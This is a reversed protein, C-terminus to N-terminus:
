EEESGKGDTSAGDWHAEAKASLFEEKEELEEELYYAAEPPPATEPAPRLPPASNREM